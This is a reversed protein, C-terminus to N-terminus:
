KSLVRAVEEDASDAGLVFDVSSDPLPLVPLAGLLYDLRPDELEALLRELEDPSSDFIIIEDYDDFRAAHARAVSAGLVAAIM